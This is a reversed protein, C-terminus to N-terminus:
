STEDRAFQDEIRMGVLHNWAELLQRFAVGQPGPFSADVAPETRGSRVHSVPLLCVPTSSLVVEEAHALENVTLRRREFPIQLSGALEEVVQSSLSRLVGDSPTVIRGEFVAHLTSTSTETVYGAQDLLLARSGPEIRNAEQDALWWHLRNRVKYKVPFCEAPIQRISPICLRVGQHLSSKWMEFPLEFTHIGATPEGSGGGLYTANAGATCFLVVGLDSSQEIHRLNHALVSRAAALLSAASWKLPFGLEQVSTVLRDVHRELRFPRHRFTRAMETVSAGAVVGLDWVPVAAQSMRMFEGNLWCVTEMM